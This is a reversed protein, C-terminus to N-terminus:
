QNVTATTSVTAAVMQIPEQQAQPQPLPQLPQLPQLVQQPQWQPLQQVQQAQWQPQQQVQQAQWQPMQQAAQQPQWQPMQQAQQPQMQVVAVQQAAAQRAAQAQQRRMVIRCVACGGLVLPVIIGVAIGAGAGSSPPPSSDAYSPTYTNPFPTPGYYQGPYNSGGGGGVSPPPSSYSTAPPPPSSAAPPPSQVAVAASTTSILGGAQLATVFAGRQTTALSSLSASATSADTASTATVSIQVLVAVDLVARRSASATAISTIAVSSAPKGLIGATVAIFATQLATTFTTATYGGLTVSAAVATWGSSPPPPSPTVCGSSCASVTACSPLPCTVTSPISCYSTGPFQLNCLSAPVLGTFPTAVGARKTSLYLTTLSPLSGISPPIAGSLATNGGLALFTLAQLSGFADPIFGRMGSNSYVQLETLYSLSFISPPFVGSSQQSVWLKTVRWTGASSGFCGMIGTWSDTMTDANPGCATTSSFWAQGTIYYTTTTTGGSYSGTTTSPRDSNFQTYSSAVLGPLALVMSALAACQAPQLDTIDACTYRAPWPPPAPSPPPPASSSPLLPPSPPPSPQQLSSGPPSPGFLIQFTGNGTNFGLTTFSAISFSSGGGGCFYDQGSGPCGTPGCAGGGAGGAYGGGGGSRIYGNSLSGWAGGGGGFGGVGLPADGTGAGGAFGQNYSLGSSGGFSTGTGGGNAGAGGGGGVDGYLGGGVGGTGNTSGTDGPRCTKATTNLSASTCAPSPPNPAYAGGGGGGGAAMLLSAGSFIFTGGGGGGGNPGNACTANAGRQGIIITLVQSQSLLLTSSIVAGAGGGTGGGSAGGLTLVYSGSVPVTWQIFGNQTVNLPNPLAPTSGGGPTLTYTTGPTLGTVPPALTLWQQAARTSDCAALTLSNAFGDLSAGTASICAAGSNCSGAYCCTGPYPWALAGSYVNYALTNSAAAAFVGSCSAGGIEVAGITGGCSLCGVVGLIASGSGISVQYSTSTQYFTLSSPQLPDFVRLDFLQSPLAACASMVIAGGDVTWCLGSGVNQIQKNTFPGTIAVGAAPAQVSPPPSTAQAVTVFVAGIYSAGFVYSNAVKDTWARCSLVPDGVRFVNYCGPTSPTFSQSVSTSYASGSCSGSTVVSGACNNGVGGTVGLSLYLVSYELVRM